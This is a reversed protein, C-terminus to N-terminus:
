TVSNKVLCGRLSSIGPKNIIPRNGFMLKTMKVATKTVPFYEGGVVGRGVGERELSQDEQVENELFIM